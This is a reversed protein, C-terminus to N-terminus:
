GATIHPLSQQTVAEDVHITDSKKTKALKASFYYRVTTKIVHKNHKFNLMMEDITIKGPPESPFSDAKLAPSRPERGPNPLDGPSPCPLGSWYEQRSFEM